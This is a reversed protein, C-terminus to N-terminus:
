FHSGLALAHALALALITTYHLSTSIFVLVTTRFFCLFLLVESHGSTYPYVPPKCPRCNNKRCLLCCLRHTMSNACLSPPQRVTTYLRGAQQGVLTATKQSAAECHHVFERSTLGSANSHIAFINLFFVFM